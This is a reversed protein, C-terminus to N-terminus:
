EVKLQKMIECLWECADIKKFIGQSAYAVLRMTEGSNDYINVSDCYPFLRILNEKAASFRREITGDSVGHGGKRIRLAIREKAIEPSNIGVYRLHIQYGLEKAKRVTHFIENGSLTTERNFSVGQEFCEKQLALLKRGAEIQKSTDRWDWGEAHLIEDSNLRVGLDTSKESHYLTSKGAGNVGAFITLSKTVKM